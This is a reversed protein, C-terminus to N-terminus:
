DERIYLSGTLFQFTDGNQVYRSNALVDWYLLNGSVEADFIGVGVVTVPEALGAITTWGITASNSIRMRTTYTPDVELNTWFPHSSGSTFVRVRKGTPSWEVYDTNAIPYASASAGDSTPNTTFLSVWSTSFSSIAISRFRNLTEASVPNTKGTM